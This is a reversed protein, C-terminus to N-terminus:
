SETKQIINALYVGGIVLVSGIGQFLSFKENLILIGAMIAVITSIGVFSATRTIGIYQIASNYLIFALMSAGIGTYLIAILFDFNTYPLTFFEMLKGSKGNEVFAFATFCIM